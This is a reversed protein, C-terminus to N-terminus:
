GGAGLKYSQALQEGNTVTNQAPLIRGFSNIKSYTRQFVPVLAKGWRPFPFPAVAATKGAM